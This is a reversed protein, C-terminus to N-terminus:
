ARLTGDVASQHIEDALAETVRDVYDRQARSTPVSTGGITASSLLKDRQLRLVLRAALVAPGDPGIVIPQSM